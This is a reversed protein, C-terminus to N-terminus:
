YSKVLRLLSGNSDKQGNRNLDYYSHSTFRTLYFGYTIKGKARGFDRFLCKWCYRNYLRLSNRDFMLLLFAMATM